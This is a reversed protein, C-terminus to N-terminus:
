IEKGLKDGIKLRYGNIFEKVNLAKSGAPRVKIISLKEGQGCSIILEKNTIDVIKGAIDNTFANYHSAELIDLKLPPKKVFTYAGPWPQMARIQNIIKSCSNNWKIEGDSKKLKPALSIKSEDQPTFSITGRDIENLINELIRASEYSLRANLEVATENDRIDIVVQKIIPGADMKETMKIITIGTQKDGNLIAYNVPSAGRYKPLLSPHINICCKSPLGLIERCLKQGYAVVVILEVAHDKLQRIFLEDNINEPQYIKLNPYKLSEQKVPSISEKLGRGKKSDPQTIVAIVSHKKQTALMRLTPVGLDSSGIFILRM